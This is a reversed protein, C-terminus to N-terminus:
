ITNEKDARPTYVCLYMTLMLYNLNHSFSLSSFKQLLFTVAATITQFLYVSDSRKNLLTGNLPLVVFVLILVM